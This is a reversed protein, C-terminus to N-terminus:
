SYAVVVGDTRGGNDIQYELRLALRGSFLVVVALVALIGKFRFLGSQRAIRALRHATLLEIFLQFGARLSVASPKPHLQNLVKLLIALEARM